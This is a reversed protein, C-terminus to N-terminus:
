LCLYTFHYSIAPVAREQCWNIKQFLFPATVWDATGAHSLFNNGCTYLSRAVAESSIMPLVKCDQRQM